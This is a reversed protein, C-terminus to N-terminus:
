GNASCKSYRPRPKVALFLRRAKDSTRLFTSDGTSRTFRWNARLFRFRRPELMNLAHDRALHEIAFSAGTHSDSSENALRIRTVPPSTRKQRM